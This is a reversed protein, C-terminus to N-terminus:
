RVRTLSLAFTDQGTFVEGVITKIDMVSGQYRAPTGELDFEVTIFAEGRLGDLEFARSSGQGTVSGRGDLKGSQGENIILHWDLKGTDAPMGVAASTGRWEGRVKVEAAERPSRPPKCAYLAIIPVLLTLLHRRM